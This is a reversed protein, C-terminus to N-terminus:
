SLGHGAPHPARALVVAGVEAAGGQLLVEACSRITAGSTFVDDVLLLREGELPRKLSFADRLNKQREALPLEQQSATNRTRALLRADLTFGREQCLERALLLSQNYTRQQLRKRHLPVPVVLDPIFGDCEERLRSALLRGLPSQLGIAHRFKFRHIAERLGDEYMGLASLMSLPLPRRLCNECPYDAGSPTVHPILCHPCRPSPIPPFRDLCDPCLEVDTETELTDGCLHCAPPLLWDVCEQLSTKILGWM